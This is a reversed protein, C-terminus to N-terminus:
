KKWYFKVELTSGYIYQGNEERDILTPYTTTSIDMIQYDNNNSYSTRRTLAEHINCLADYVKDQSKHKGNLLVSHRVIMGKEFDTLEPFGSSLAMAIGNKPPNSGITIKAYPNTAEAMDIVDNLINNFTSTM